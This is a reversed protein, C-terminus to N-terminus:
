SQRYLQHKKIYDAVKVPVNVPFEPSHERIKTSSVNIPDIKIFFIKGHHNDILDQNVVTVHKNLFTKISPNFQQINRSLVILHAHDLIEEWRHWTNFKAFADDGLILCLSTDPNEKELAILTDIMYSPGQRDIEHRDLKFTARNEIALEIMNIRDQISAYPQERHVSQYSPLFHVAALNAQELAIEAITLHAIHIPDFTGGLIGIPKKM